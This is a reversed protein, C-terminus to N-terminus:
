KEEWYNEWVEELLKKLEAERQREEESLNSDNYPQDITLVIRVFPNETYLWRLPFKMVYGEHTKAVKLRRTEGTARQLTANRVVPPTGVKPIVLSYTYEDSTLALKVDEDYETGFDLPIIMQDGYVKPLLKRAKYPSTNTIKFVSRMVYEKKTSYHEFIVPEGMSSRLTKEADSMFDGGDDHNKADVIIKSIYWDFGVYYEGDNVSVYHVVRICSCLLLSIMVLALYTCIKKM